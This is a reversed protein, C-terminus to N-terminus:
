TTTISKCGKTINTKSIRRLKYINHLGVLFLQTWGDLWKQSCGKSGFNIRGQPTLLSPSTQPRVPDSLCLRRRIPFYRMKPSNKPPMLSAGSWIASTVFAEFVAGERECVKATCERTELGPFSSVPTCYIDSIVGETTNYVSLTAPNSSRNTWSLRYPTTDNGIDGRAHTLNERKKHSGNNREDYIINSNQPNQSFAQFVSSVLTRYSM